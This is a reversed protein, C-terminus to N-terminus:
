LWSTLILLRSEALENKLPESVDNLTDRYEQSTERIDVRIKDFQKYLYHVKSLLQNGSCQMSQIAPKFHTEDKFLLAALKPYRELLGNLLQDM